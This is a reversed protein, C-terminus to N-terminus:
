LSNHKQLYRYFATAVAEYIFAEEQVSLVKLEKYVEKDINICWKKWDTYSSVESEIAAAGAKVEAIYENIVEPILDKAKLNNAIRYTTFKTRLKIPFKLVWNMIENTM